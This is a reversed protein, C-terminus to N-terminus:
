EGDFHLKNLLDRTVAPFYAAHHNVDETELNIKQIKGKLSNDSHGWVRAESLVNAGYSRQLYTMGGVPCPLELDWFKCPRTSEIEADEFYYRKFNKEINAGDPTVFRWKSNVYGFGFFDMGFGTTNSGVLGYKYALFQGHRTWKLRPNKKLVSHVDELASAKVGLDVDDDWRMMGPPRSRLAGILTGAVAFWPESLEADHSRLTEVVERLVGHATAVREEPTTRYTAMEQLLLNEKRLRSVEESVHERMKTMDCGYVSYLQWLDHPHPEDGIACCRCGWSPNADYFMFTDGCGSRNAVARACESATSLEGFNFRQSTCRFKASILFPKCTASTSIATSTTANEDLRMPQHPERAASDNMSSIASAWTLPSDWGRELLAVLVIAQAVMVALALPKFGWMWRRSRCKEVAALPSM